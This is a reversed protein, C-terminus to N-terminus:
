LCLSRPLGAGLSHLSLWCCSRFVWPHHFAMCEFLDTCVGSSCLSPFCSIWDSPSFYFFADLFTAIWLLMQLLVHTLSPLLPCGPWAFLIFLPVPAHSHVPGWSCENKQPNWVAELSGFPRACIQDSRLCCAEWLDIHYMYEHIYNVNILCM